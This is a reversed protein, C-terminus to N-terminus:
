FWEASNDSCIVDYGCIVSWLGGNRFSHVDVGARGVNIGEHSPLPTHTMRDKWSFPPSPASM